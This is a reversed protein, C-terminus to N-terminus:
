KDYLRYFNISPKNLFRFPYKTTGLGYSIYFNSDSIKYYDKDYKKGDKVGMIGGIIPLRIQGGHTHGALILNINKKNLLEDVNDPEHMM